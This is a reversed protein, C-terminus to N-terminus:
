VHYNFDIKDKQKNERGCSEQRQWACAREREERKNESWHNCLGAQAAQGSEGDLHEWM